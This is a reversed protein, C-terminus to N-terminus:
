YLKSFHSDKIESSLIRYRHEHNWGIIKETYIIKLVIESTKDYIIEISGDIWVIIM